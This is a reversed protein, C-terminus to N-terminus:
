KVPTVLLESKERKKLQFRMKAVNSDREVTGNSDSEMTMEMTYKSDGALSDIPLVTQDKGQVKFFKAKMDPMESWSTGTADVKFEGEVAMGPRGKFDEIKALKMSGSLHEPKLGRLGDRKLDALFTERNIVWTEGVKVKKATGSLEDDTSAEDGDVTLFGEIIEEQVPSAEKGNVWMEAYPEAHRLLVVDGKQFFKAKLGDEVCEV